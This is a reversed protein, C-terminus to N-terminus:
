FPVWVVDDDVAYLRCRRGDRWQCNGLARGLAWDGSAWGAVGSDGIAFARPVPAALFPRYLYERRQATVPVKDVEDVRAYDTAEPRPVTGSAHFGAQDLFAEVIPVWRDMDSALGAHGDAPRSSWPGLQHLQVRGGGERWAEAWRRPNREGWYRDHSWYLWLTPLQASPAAQARWLRALEDAGCPDGPRVIPDGGAGGSFNIAAVLGAPAGAAVALTALGGVSQGIAVWRQADVWPLTRAHALTALVQDSAATAMPEYVKARCPGSAEPDFSGAFTAGYGLRTPVLVAFGKTVLYRALQEFRQRGTAARADAGARGHSVIALPFPGDGAPRFATVAIRGTGERGHLDRVTVDIHHVEERLDAALREGVPQATAPGAPSALWAAWALAAAAARLRAAV